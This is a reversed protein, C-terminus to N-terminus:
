DHGLLRDSLVLQSKALWAEIAPIAACQHAKTDIYATTPDSTGPNPLFREWEFM